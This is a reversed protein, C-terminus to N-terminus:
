WSASLDRWHPNYKEILMVKKVRLWGKIEKERAIAREISPTEEYHVLRNIQYRTKFGYVM